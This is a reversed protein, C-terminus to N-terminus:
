ILKAVWFSGSYISWLIWLINYFNCFYHCKYIGKGCTTFSIIFIGNRGISILLINLFGIKKRSNKITTYAPRVTFIVALHCSWNNKIVMCGQTNVNKAARKESTGSDESNPPFQLKTQLCYLKIFKIMYFIVWIHKVM